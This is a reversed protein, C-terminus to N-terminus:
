DAQAAIVIDPKQEAIQVAIQESKEFGDSIVATNRDVEWMKIVKVGKVRETVMQAMQNLFNDGNFKGNWRLVVTKGELTWPHPNLRVPGVIPIKKEETAKKCAVFAIGVFFIVLFLLLKKCM